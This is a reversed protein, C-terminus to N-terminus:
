ACPRCITTIAISVPGPMLAFMLFPVVQWMSVRCVVVCRDGHGGCDDFTQTFSHRTRSGNKLLHHHVMEVGNIGFGVVGEHEGAARPVPM